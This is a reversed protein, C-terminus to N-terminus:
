GWAAGFGMTCLKANEYKIELKLWYSCHVTWHKERPPEAPFQAAPHQLVLYLLRQKLDPWEHRMERGTKIKKWVSSTSVKTFSISACRLKLQSTPVAEYKFNSFDCFKRTCMVFLRTRLCLFNEKRSQTKLDTLAPLSSNTGLSWYGSVTKLWLM